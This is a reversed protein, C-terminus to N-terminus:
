VGTILLDFAAVIRDRDSSLSAIPSGLDTKRMASALHTQMVWQEGFLDFVPNLRNAPITDPGLRDLPAVMRTPYSSLHDSQCDLLRRDSTVGGFFM